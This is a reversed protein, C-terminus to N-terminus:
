EAERFRSIRQMHCLWRDGELHPLEFLVEPRDLMGGRGLGSPSGYM